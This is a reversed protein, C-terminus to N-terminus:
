VGLGFVSVVLIIMLQRMDGALVVRGDSRVWEGDYSKVLYNDADIYSECDWETDTLNQKKLWMNLPKFYELISSPDLRDQRGDTLERLVDPWPESIGKRMMESIKHGAEKSQYIDCTHLPGV